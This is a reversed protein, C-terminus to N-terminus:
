LWMIVFSYASQIHDHMREKLKIMFLAGVTLERRRVTISLCLVCNQLCFESHSGVEECWGDVVFVDLSYGDTTSFVHAERINLGIDSLM